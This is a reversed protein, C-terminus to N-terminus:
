RYRLLGTGPFLAGHGYEGGFLRAQELEFLADDYRKESYLAVGRGLRYDPNDPELECASNFSKGSEEFQRRNWNVGGSSPM